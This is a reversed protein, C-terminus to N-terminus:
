CKVLYGGLTIVTASHAGVSEFLKETGRMVAPSM